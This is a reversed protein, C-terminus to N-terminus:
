YRRDRIESNWTVRHPCPGSVDPFKESHVQGKRIESVVLDIDGCEYIERKETASLFADEAMRCCGIEGEASGHVEMM